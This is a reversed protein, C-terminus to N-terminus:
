PEGWSDREVRLQEAIEEGTRLVGAKGFLDFISFPGAAPKQNRERLMGVLSEVARIAEQSLGSADITQTM